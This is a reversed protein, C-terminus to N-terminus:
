NNFNKCFPLQVLLEMNFQSEYYLTALKMNEAPSLKRVEVEITAHIEEM